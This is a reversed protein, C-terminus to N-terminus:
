YKPVMLLSSQQEWLNNIIYYFSFVPIGMIYLNLVLKLSLPSAQFILSLFAYFSPRWSIVMLFWNVIFEYYIRLLKANREKEKTSLVINRKSNLYRNAALFNNDKKNRYNQSMLNNNLILLSSKKHSSFYRPQWPDPIKM